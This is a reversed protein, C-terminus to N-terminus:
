AKQQTCARRLKKLSASTSLRTRFRLSPLVSVTSDGSARSATLRMSARKSMSREGMPERVVLFEKYTRYFHAGDRAYSLLQATSVPSSKGTKVAVDDIEQMFLSSIARSKLPADGLAILSAILGHADRVERWPGYRYALGAVRANSIAVEPELKRTRGM